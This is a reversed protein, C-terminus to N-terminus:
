VADKGCYLGMGEIFGLSLWFLGALNLSYLNTDFFSHVLFAVVGLSLGLVFSNRFTFFNTAARKINLYLVLFIFCIFSALGLIGIDAAMQLFCNHAYSGKKYKDVDTRLNRFHEFFTNVGNGLFPHQKFIRWGVSWMSMRDGLSQAMALSDRFYIQLYPILSIALGLIVIVVVLPIILRRINIGVLIAISVVTGLMASRSTTLFLFYALLGLFLSIIVKFLKQKRLDFIAVSIFTFLFINIWAAFDNPYPFSATPFDTKGLARAYPKFVRYGPYHLFDVGTIYYQYIADVLIAGASFAMTLFVRRLQERTTITDAVVIFLIVWKFVKSFLARISLPMYQSNVLSLINFITFIVIAILIRKDIKLNLTKEFFIKKVFFAIIALTVCIELVTKSFPLCFLACLINIEIFTDFRSNITAKRPM